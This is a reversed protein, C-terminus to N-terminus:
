VGSIFTFIWTLTSEIDFQDESVVLADCLGTNYDLQVKLVKYVYLCRAFDWEVASLSQPDLGEITSLLETEVIKDFVDKELMLTKKFSGIVTKLQEESIEIFFTKYKFHLKGEFWFIDEVAPLYDSTGADINTSLSYDCQSQSETELIDTSESMKEAVDLPPTKKDSCIYTTSSNEDEDSSDEDSSDGDNFHQLYYIGGVCVFVVGGFLVCGLSADPLINFLNDLNVSSLINSLLNEEIIYVHPYFFYIPVFWNLLAIIKTCILFITIIIFIM